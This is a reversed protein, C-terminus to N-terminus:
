LKGEVSLCADELGLIQVWSEAVRRWSYREPDVDMVRWYEEKIAEITNLAYVDVESETVCDSDIITAPNKGITDSLAGYDRVVPYVRSLLMEVATICYTELFDTPYLWVTSSSLESALESQPINGRYKIYPRNRILGQLREVEERKGMKLMNDFGYFVHLEAEKIEKVVRDMVRVARELGRDPSSSFVVKGYQKEQTYSKFRNPEIGNSTVIIKEKPVGVVTRLFDAHFQSLSFVGTLWPAQDLGPITIDHCWAYMPDDSFKTTHRWSIHASPSYKAFYKLVRDAPLYGVKGFWKEQSRNNFVLVKRGTLDSLHRAMEVAATESGGIGKEKYIEEDWEYFGIPLGSIVIDSTKERVKLPVGIKERATEIEKKVLIAENDPGYTLAEDVFKQAKDIDGRQFAFRALQTLPYHRYTGDQLPIVGVRKSDKEYSCQSACVYYPYADQHRNLKVYSDAIAIFFEAKQPALQLGQHALQIARDFQNLQMASFAAYQIGLIRDHPELDELTIAVMLESFAELPKGNEFLEKGYYYRLRSDLEGKKEELMKLNRKQDRKLDEVSRMHQVAWTTAVQFRINPKVPSQPIQGEHVFYRWKFGLRNNTVRERIFSCIPSGDAALAYHYTAVWFDELGMSHDRWDIFAERNVLVDDLDLWMVFDTKVPEYSANRAKSFDNVWSFHHLYLKTGSPNPSTLYKELLELSGDTSGTDTFHIEDFCGEVSQLLRDINHIENKLICALAVSPRNM